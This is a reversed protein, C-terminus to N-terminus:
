DRRLRRMVSIALTVLAIVSVALVAGYYFWFALNCSRREAVGLGGDTRAVTSCEAGLWEQLSQQGGLMGVLALAAVLMIITAYRRGAPNPQPTM